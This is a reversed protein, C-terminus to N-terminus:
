LAEMRVIVTIQLYQFDNAPTLVITNLRKHAVVLKVHAILLPQPSQMCSLKRAILVCLLKRCHYM